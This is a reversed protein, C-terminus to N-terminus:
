AKIKAGVEAVRDNFNRSAMDMEAQADPNSQYEKLLKVEVAGSPVIRCQTARYLNGNKKSPKPPSVTIEGHFRAFPQGIAQAAEHAPSIKGWDPTQCAALADAMTHLASCKSTKFTVNAPVVRNDLYVLLVAEIHENDIGPLETWSAEVIEGKTNKKCFYQKHTLLSAKLTTMRYTKGDYVLFMDGEEVPPDKFEKTLKGWEDSKNHHAFTVYPPFKKKALAPPQADGFVAPLTFGADALGGSKEAISAKAM